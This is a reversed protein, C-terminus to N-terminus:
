YGIEIHGVTSRLRLYATPTPLFRSQNPDRGPHLTGGNPIEWPSLNQRRDNEHSWQQPFSISRPKTRQGSGAHTRRRVPCRPFHLSVLWVFWPLYYSVFDVRLFLVTVVTRM